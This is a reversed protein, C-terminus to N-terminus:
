NHWFRIKETQAGRGLRDTKRLVSDLKRNQGSLIRKTNFSSFVEEIKRSRWRSAVFYTKVSGKPGMPYLRTGRQPFYCSNNCELPNLYNSLDSNPFLIRIEDLSDIQYIYVYLPISKSISFSYTDSSVLSIGQPIQQIRYFGEEGNSLRYRFIIKMSFPSKLEKRLKIIRDHWPCLKGAFDVYSEAFDYESREILYISVPYSTFSYFLYFAIVLSFYFSIKRFFPCFRKKKEPLLYDVAEKLSSVAYIAIGISPGRKKEFKEIDGKNDHPIFIKSQDPLQNIDGSLKDSLGDVASISGLAIDSIVGTAAIAVYKKPWNVLQALLALAIPLECSRGVINHLLGNGREDKVECVLTYCDGNRVLDRRALEHYVAIKATSFSTEVDPSPNQLFILKIPHNDNDFGPLSETPTLVISGMTGDALLIYVSIPKKGDIIPSDRM